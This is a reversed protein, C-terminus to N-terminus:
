SFEVIKVNVACNNFSCDVTHCSLLLSLNNVNGDKFIFELFRDVANTSREYCPETVIHKIYINKM